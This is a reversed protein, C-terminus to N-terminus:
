ASEGAGGLLRILGVPDDVPVVWRDSSREIGFFGAVARPERLVLRVRPAGPLGLDLDGEIPEDIREVRVIAALPVTGRWRLGVRVELMESSVRLPFLRLGQADGVIWLVSYASLATLAWAATASWQAVLLHIGVAEAGVLLVLLGALASWGSERHVSFVRPGTPPSRRWGAFALWLLGVETAAARALPTPLHQGLAHQLADLGDAGDQRAAVFDRRLLHLRSLAYGAVVLEGLAAAAGFAGLWPGSVLGLRWSIGLGILFLPVLTRGRAHGPRVLLFWGVAATTATLDVAIAPGLLSAHSAYLACNLLVATLVGLGVLWGAYTLTRATATM